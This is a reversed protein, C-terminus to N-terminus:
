SRPKKEFALQGPTTDVFQVLAPLRARRLFDRQQNIQRINAEDIVVAFLKQGAHVVLSDFEKRGAQDRLTQDFFDFVSRGLTAVV